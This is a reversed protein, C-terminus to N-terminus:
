QHLGYELKTYRSWREVDHCVYPKSFVIREMGFAPPIWRVAGDYSCSCHRMRRGNCDWVSDDEPVTTVRATLAVNGRGLRLNHNTPYPDFKTSPLM